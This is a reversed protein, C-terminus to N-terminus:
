EGIVFHWHPGTAYSSPNKTEDIAELLVRGSGEIEEIAEEFTYGPIPRVDVAAGSKVHWSNLNAQGLSSNPDRKNQTVYVEPFIEKITSRGDAVPVATAPDASREEPEEDTADPGYLETALIGRAVKRAETGRERMLELKQEDTAAIYYEEKILENVEQLILEDAIETYRKYEEDTLKRSPLGDGELNVKKQPSGFPSKDTVVTLRGVEKVGLDNPNNEELLKSESPVSDFDSYGIGFVAPVLWPTGAFGEKNLVEFADQLFIPTLRSLIANKNWEIPDEGEPPDGIFPEGLSVRDGVANEGNLMDFLLSAVPSSKNRFFSVTVDWASRSALGPELDKIEGKITKTKGGEGIGVYSSLEPLIRSYLTIFQGFGGLIDYRKTGMRLKMFDSSRPDVEVDFGAMSALTASTLAIGAFGLMSKVAEKRVPAPLSTYYMPNLLAARSSILRPSFFLGNLLPAAGRMDPLAGNGDPLPGRGTASNIFSGMGKLLEPDDIDHGTKEFDELYKNFTDFRLKNLFGVFARESGAVLKGLGPIKKAWESQFDEERLDLRHGETTTLSLGAERMKMYNPHSMIADNLGQYARDSGMYKFMQFFGKWFRSTGAFVIGQRLPASLDVSSMLTRPLNLANSIADVTTSNEKVAKGTTKEGKAIKIALADIGGKDNMVAEADERMFRLSENSSSQKAIRFSALLRGANNAINSYVEYISALELFAEGFDTKQKDTAEGRAIAGALREVKEGKTILAIGVAHAEASDMGQNMRLIDDYDLDMERARRDIEAFSEKTAEPAIDAAEQIVPHVARKSKFRQGSVNGIMTRQKQKGPNLKLKGPVRDSNKMYRTGPITGIGEEGDIIRQQGQRLIEVVEADSYFGESKIGLRRAMRAFFIRIQDMVSKDIIGGESAEAMVEEVARIRDGGYAEPNAEMWSNTIDQIQQNGEYLDNLLGDLSERFETNLGIHGLAEHFVVADIKEPASINDTMLLVRGDPLTVGLAEEAGDATIEAELKPDLDDVNNVILFDPSNKWDQTLQKIRFETGSLTQGKGTEELPEEKKSKKTKGSYDKGKVPNKLFSPVEDDGFAETKEPIPEVNKKADQKTGRYVRATSGDEAEVDIYSGKNDAGKRLVRRVAAGGLELVGHFGAGALGAIINQTNSFNEQAGYTIDGAQMAADVAQNSTVAAIGRGALGVGKGAFPVLDAPSLGTPLSVGFRALEGVGRDDLEQAVGERQRRLDDGIMQDHLMELQEPTAEPFQEALLAKSIQGGNLDSDNFDALASVGANMPNYLLGEDIMLSLDSEESLDDQRVPLSRTFNEYGVSTGVNGDKLFKERYQRAADFDFPDSMLATGRDSAMKRMNLAIEEISISPDQLSSVYYNEIDKDLQPSVPQKDFGGKVYTETEPGTAQVSTEPQRWNGVDSPSKIEGTQIKYDQDFQQLEELTFEKKGKAAAKYQRDIIELEELSFEKPM